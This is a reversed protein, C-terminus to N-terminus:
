ISILFSKLFMINVSKIFKPKKNYLVIFLYFLINGFCHTNALFNAKFLRRSFIDFIALCNGMVFMLAINCYLMKFWKSLLVLSVNEVNIIM